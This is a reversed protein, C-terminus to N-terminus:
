SNDHGLNYVMENSHILKESLVKMFNKVMKIYAPSSESDANEIFEISLIFNSYSSTVATASRLEGLIPAIEGFVSGDSLTSLLSQEESDDSKSLIDVSGNVIFFVEKGKEGQEFLIEAKKLRVFHAHSVLSLIEDDSLERFFSIKEKVTLLMEIEPTAHKKPQTEKPTECPECALFEEYKQYRLVVWSPLIDDEYILVRERKSQIMERLYTQTDAVFDKVAVTGDRSTM